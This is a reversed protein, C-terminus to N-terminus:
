NYLDPNNSLWERLRYAMSEAAKMARKRIIKTPILGGYKIFTKYILLKKGMVPSDIIEWGGEIEKLDGSVRKWSLERCASDYNRRLVFHVKVGLYKWTGVDSWYEVTAGDSDQQIVKLSDIGGYISKYNKYDNLMKWIESASGQILFMAQVGPLGNANEIPEIIIDDNQLRVVDAASRQSFAAPYITLGAFLFVM